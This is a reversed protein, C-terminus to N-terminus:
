TRCALVVSVTAANKAFDVVPFGRRPAPRGLIKKRAPPWDRANRRTVGDTVEVRSIALQGVGRV